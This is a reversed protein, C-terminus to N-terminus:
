GRPAADCVRQPMHVLPIRGQRMCIDASTKRRCGIAAHAWTIRPSGLRMPRHAKASERYRDLPRRLLSAAGVAALVWCRARGRRAAVTTLAPKRLKKVIPSALGQLV